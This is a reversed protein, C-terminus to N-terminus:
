TVYFHQKSLKLSVADNTMMSCWMSSTTHINCTFFLSILVHSPDLVPRQMAALRSLLFVDLIEWCFKKCEVSLQTVIAKQFCNKKKTPFSTTNSGMKKEQHLGVQFVWCNVLSGAPRYVSLHKCGEYSDPKNSLLNECILFKGRTYLRQM